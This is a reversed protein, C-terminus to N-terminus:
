PAEVLSASVVLNDEYHGTAHDFEGDCTILRLEPGDTLGYVDLTPFADKAFREQGTVEYTVSRGDDLTVTVPDGPRLRDLEYFVAPGTRSDVHGVIVSPGREGPEPGREWWGTDDWGPVELTGDAQRALDIVRADVGITPITLRAPPGQVTPPVTETPTVPETTTTTTEVASSSPPASSSPASPVSRRDSSRRDTDSGCGVVLM